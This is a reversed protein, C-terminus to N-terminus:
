TREKPAGSPLLLRMSQQLLESGPRLPTPPGDELFGARRYFSMASGPGLAVHLEMACAGADRAWDLASALLASGIHQRRAAPHVWVQYLTATNTDAPDIRAWALGVPRRSDDEAVMPYNLPSATGVALRTIWEEEPFAAERELTSGFAHPADRLAALRLERYLPWENPEFRRVSPM